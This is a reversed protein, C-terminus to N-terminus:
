HGWGDAFGMLGVNLEVMIEETWTEGRGSCYVRRVSLRSAM